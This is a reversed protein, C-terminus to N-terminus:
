KCMRAELVKKDGLSYGLPNKVWARPLRIAKYKGLNIKIGNEV